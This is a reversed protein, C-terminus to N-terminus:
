KEDDSRANPALAAILKAERYFENSYANKFDNQDAGAIGMITRVVDRAMFARKNEGIKRVVAIESTTDQQDIDVASATFEDQLTIVKGAAKSSPDIPDLFAEKLNGSNLADFDVCHPYRTIPDSKGLWVGKGVNKGFFLYNNNFLYHGSGMTGDDISGENGSFNTPRGYESSVVLTVKDKFSPNSNLSTIFNAIDQMVKKLILYQSGSNIDRSGSPLSHYLGDHGDFMGFPDLRNTENPHGLCVTIVRSMGNAFLELCFDLQAKLDRTMDETNELVSSERFGDKILETGTFSNIYDNLIGAKFNSLNLRKSLSKSVIEPHSFDGTLINKAIADIASFPMKIAPKSHDGHVYAAGDLVLNDLPRKKIGTEKFKDALLRAVVGAVHPGKGQPHGSYIENNAPGHFSGLMYVGRLVSIDKVHNKLPSGSWGLSCRYDGVNEIYSGNPIAAFYGNTTRISSYEDYNEIISKNNLVVNKFKGEGDENAASEPLDFQMLVDPGLEKLGSLDPYDTTLLHHVGGKLEVFIFYHEDANDPQAHLSSSLLPYLSATGLIHEILERRSFKNKM